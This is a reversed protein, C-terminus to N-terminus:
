ETVLNSGAAHGFLDACWQCRTSRIGDIIPLFGAGKGFLVTQGNGDLGSITAASTAQLDHVVHFFDLAREVGSAALGHLSEAARLAVYFLEEGVRAVDLGLHQGIRVAIHAHEAGAIAGGLAAELLENLFGWCGRKGVGLAVADDFAGAGNAGLHAIDTGASDLVDDGFVAGYGEELDIGTHLDLVGNGLRDGTGIDDSLLEADRGALRQGEILIWLGVAMSKLEADIGFVDEIAESRTRAGNDGELRRGARADAHIGRYARARDDRRVIVGQDGLQHHPARGALDGQGAGAKGQAFEGDGAHAGHQREVSVHHVLRREDTGSGRCLIGSGRPSGLNTDKSVPNVM